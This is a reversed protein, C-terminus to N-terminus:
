RISFQTLNKYLTRIPFVYVFAKYYTKCKLIESLTLQRLPEFWLRIGATVDLRQRKHGNECKAIKVNPVM